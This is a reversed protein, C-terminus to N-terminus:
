KEPMTLGALSVSRLTEVDTPPLFFRKPPMLTVDYDLRLNKASELPAFDFRDGKAQVGITRATAILADVFGAFDSKTIKKVTM